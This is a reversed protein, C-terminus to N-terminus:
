VHARGIEHDHDWRATHMTKGAFSDLGPIAPLKPQSLLGTAAILFRSVVVTGDELQTTWCDRATDFESRLARAGYRIHGTM